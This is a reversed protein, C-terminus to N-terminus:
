MRIDVENDWDAKVSLTRPLRITIEPEKKARYSGPDWTGNKNTDYLIRLTYEGPPFLKRSWEAQQLPISDVIKNEQVFQLVPNLSFDLNSFRLVVHGYDEERKTRFTLTDAKEMTKGSSDKLADQQVVLIYDRAPLWTNHMTLKEATSDLLWTVGQVPRYNTDSLILKSTDFSSIKKNTFISLPELLDQNGSTSFSIHLPPEAEQKGPKKPVTPTNKEGSKFERFAYLTLSKRNSDISVPTEMFAFMKTSDDYKKSYDNPLVFVNFTETPLHHFLFNGKGDLKAYFDPRIKEVASDSLNRHLVVILTSDVEGTEALLVNGSLTGNAITNGTSFVYLLNKAVNAENVDQIAKGFDITYTTNPLLSDRLKISVTKLKSEILPPSSPYPSVVVEENFNNSLQIYEDFNLTIKKTNFHLTSDAPLATVLVPPLTDKPGGTPPIINACGTLGALWATTFAMLLVYILRRM